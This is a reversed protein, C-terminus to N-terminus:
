KSVFVSRLSNFFRFLLPMNKTIIEANGTMDSKFDLQKKYNTNMGNVLAVEVRYADKNAIPSLNSVKGELVGFEAYPYNDVKIKVMQGLSVKGFGAPPISVIGLYYESNTLVAFLETGAQVYENQHLPLLYSLKGDVPSKIIFNQEWNQSYSMIQNVATKIGQVLTLSKGGKGMQTEMIQNQLQTITIETEEITKRMASVDMQKQRLKNEEELYETQSIVGKQLLDKDIKNRVTMNSLDNELLQMQRRSIEVIDRYSYIQIQINSIKQSEYQNALFSNYESIMRNLESFTSELDGFSRHNGQYSPLTRFGYLATSVQKAYALLNDISEKSTPNEIEAIMDGAKVHSTDTVFLHQIKGSTKTVLKLPPTTTTIVAKGTVTDSYKIFYSFVFLSIIILFIVSIGWRITWSPVNSIIEDVEESYIEDKITNNKEAM